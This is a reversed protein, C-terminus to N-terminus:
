QPTASSNAGTSPADESPVSFSDFPTPNLIVIDVRRNRARGDVTTNPAVPRYEAYGAASLRRSEFGYNEVLAKILDSARALALMFADPPFSVFKDDAEDNEFYDHDDQLFFAPTSRLTTGYLDAIQPGVARKLVEENRTGLVPQTRDFVGTFAVAEKAMGLRDARVTRLDWYIHDGNAIVADPAHSMARALMRRRVALTLFRHKSVETPQHDPLVDHGGARVAVVLSSSRAFDLARVIDSSDAVLVIIAPFKDDVPTSGLGRRASEFAADDPLVMRGRLQRRLRAIARQHRDLTEAIGARSCVLATTLNAVSGAILQRRSIPVSLGRFFNRFFDAEFM